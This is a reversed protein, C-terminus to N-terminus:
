KWDNTNIQFTKKGSENRENKEYVISLAHMTKSQKKKQRNYADPELLETIHLSQNFQQLIPLGFLSCTVFIYVYLVCACM